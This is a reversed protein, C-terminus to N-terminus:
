GGLALSVEFGEIAIMQGEHLRTDAFIMAAGHEAIDSDM